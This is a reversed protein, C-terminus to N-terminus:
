RLVLQATVLDFVPAFCGDFQQLPVGERHAITWNALTEVPQGVLWSILGSYYWVEQYSELAEIQRLDKM